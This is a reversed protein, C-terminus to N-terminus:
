RGDAKTYRRRIPQPRHPLPHAGRQRHGSTRENSRACLEACLWLPCCAPPQWAPSFAQYCSVARCPGGGWRAPLMVSQLSAKLEQPFGGATSSPSFGGRRHSRKPSMSQARRLRHTEARHELKPLSQQRWRENKAPMPEMDAPRKNNRNKQNAQLAPKRMARPLRTFTLRM